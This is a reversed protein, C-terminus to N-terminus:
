KAELLDSLHVAIDHQVHAELTIRERTAHDELNPMEELEIKTEVQKDCDRCTYTVTYTKVAGEEDAM